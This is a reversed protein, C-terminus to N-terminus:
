LHGGVDMWDSNNRRGTDIKESWEKGCQPCTYKVTIIPSNEKEHSDSHSKTIAAAGTAAAAAGLPGGIVFGCVGGLVGAFTAFTKTIGSTEYKPTVERGCRICKKKFREM